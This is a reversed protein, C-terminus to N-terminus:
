TTPVIPRPKAAKLADLRDLEALLAQRIWESADGEDMLGNLYEYLRVHDPRKGRLVFRVIWKGAEDQRRSM